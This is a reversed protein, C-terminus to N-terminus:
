EDVQAALPRLAKAFTPGYVSFDTFHLIVGDVSRVTYSIDVTRGTGAMHDLDHQDFGIDYKSM